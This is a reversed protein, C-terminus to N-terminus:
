GGFTIARVGEEAKEKEWLSDTNSFLRSIDGPHHEGMTTARRVVDSVERLPVLKRESISVTEMAKNIVALTAAVDAKEAVKDDSKTELFTKPDQLEPRDHCWNRTSSSRSATQYVYVFPFTQLNSILYRQQAIEVPLSGSTDELLLTKPDADILTQTIKPLGSGSASHIPLNGDGDRLYLQENGYELFIKVIDLRHYLIALAIPTHLTKAVRSTLMKSREEQPLQTLCFRLDVDNKTLALIHLINYGNEDRITPDGGYRVYKEYM